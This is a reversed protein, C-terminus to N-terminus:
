SSRAVGHDPLWIMDSHYGFMDGGHHVVPVGWTSDVMLGMGYTVDEGLGVQPARRELLAKESIYREGQALRGGALEMQVYRLLDHASTWAGGAPRLPVISYNLDQKGLKM